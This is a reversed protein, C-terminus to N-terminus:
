FPTDVLDAIKLLLSAPIYTSGEPHLIGPEDPEAFWSIEAYMGAAEGDEEEEDDEIAFFRHVYVVRNHAFDWFWRANDEDKQWPIAEGGAAGLAALRANLSEQANDISRMRTLLATQGIMLQTVAPMMRAMLATLLEGMNEKSQTADALALELMAIYADPDQTIEGINPAERDDEEPIEQGFVLEQVNMELARALGAVIKFSVNTAVGREIMSIYNRSVGAKDAVKQQSLGLELRREKVIVKLERYPNGNETM